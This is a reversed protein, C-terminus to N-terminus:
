PPRPNSDGREGERSLEALAPNKKARVRERARESRGDGSAGDRVSSTAGSRTAQHTSPSSSTHAEAVRPASATPRLAAHPPRTASPPLRTHNPPPPDSASM